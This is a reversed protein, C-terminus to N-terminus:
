KQNKATRSLRFAKADGVLSYQEEHVAKVDASNGRAELVHATLGLETLGRALLADCYKAFVKEETSDHDFQEPIVGGYDLHDLIENKSCEGLLEELHAGSATFTEAKTILSVIEQAVENYKM